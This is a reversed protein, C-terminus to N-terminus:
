QQAFEEQLKSEKYELTKYSFIYVTYKHVALILIYAYM